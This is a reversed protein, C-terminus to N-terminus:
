LRDGFLCFLFMFFYFAREISIHRQRFMEFSINMKSRCFAPEISFKLADIWLVIMYFEAQCEKNMMSGSEWSQDGPELSVRRVREDVLPPRPKTEKSNPRRDNMNVVWSMDLM